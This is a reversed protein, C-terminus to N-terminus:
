PVSAVIDQRVTTAAPITISLSSKIPV